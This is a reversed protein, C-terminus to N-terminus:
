VLIRDIDPAHYKANYFEITNNGANLAITIKFAGVTNWDRTDPPTYGKGPGGNVSIDFYRTYSAGDIYYVVLTYNDTSPEWVNNFQLIGNGTINGVKEGGSCGSCSLVDAGGVLANQPAEAEYSTSTAIATPAPAPPQSAPAPPQPAPINEVPAAYQVVSITTTPIITAQVSPQIPLTNMAPLSVGQRVMQTQHPIIDPNTIRLPSFTATYVIWAVVALLLLALGPLKRRDHWIRGALLVCSNTNSPLSLIIEDPKSENQKLVSSAPLMVSSVAEEEISPDTVLLGDIQEETFFEALALKVEADFSAESIEPLQYALNPSGTRKGIPSSVSEAQTSQAPHFIHRNRRSPASRVLPFAPPPSLVSKIV